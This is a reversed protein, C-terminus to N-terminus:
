DRAGGRLRLSPLMGGFLRAILSGLAMLGATLAPFIFAIVIAAVLAGPGHVYRGNVSITDAGGIALVGCLTAFPLVIALLCVYGIKFVSGASLQALGIRDMAGEQAAVM